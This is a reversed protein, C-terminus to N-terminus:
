FMQNIFNILCNLLRITQCILFDAKDDSIIFFESCIIFFLGFLFLYVHKNILKVSQCFFLNCDYFFPNCLFNLSCKNVYNGSVFSLKYLCRCLSYFCKSHQLFIFRLPRLPSRLSRLTLFIDKRFKATFYFIFKL